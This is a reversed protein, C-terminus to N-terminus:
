GARVWSHGQKQHSPADLLFSPQHVSKAHRTRTGAAAPPPGLIWEPGKRGCAALSRSTWPQHSYEITGFSSSVQQRSDCSAQPAKPPEETILWPPKFHSPKVIHFQSDRIQSSGLTGTVECRTRGGRRADTSARAVLPRERVMSGEFKGHQCLAPGLKALVDPSM